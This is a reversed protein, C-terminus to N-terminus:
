DWGALAAVPRGEEATVRIGSADEDRLAIVAGRVRYAGPDGAPSRGVCTVWTGPTLGLDLLRQLLAGQLRLQAVTGHQGPRLADLPVCNQLM